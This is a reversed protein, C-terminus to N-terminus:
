IYTLLHSLIQTFSRTYIGKVFSGRTGEKFQRRRTKWEEFSMVAETDYTDYMTDDQNYQLSQYELYLAAEDDLVSVEATRNNRNIESQQLNLSNNHHITTTTHYNDREGTSALSNIPNEVIADSSSNSSSKIREDVEEDENNSTGYIGDMSITASGRLGKVLPNIQLAFSEDNGKIEKDYGGDETIWKAKIADERNLIVQIKILGFIYTHIRYAYDVNLELQEALIREKFLRGVCVFDFLGFLSLQYYYGDIFLLITKVMVLVIGHFQVYIFYNVLILPVDRNSSFLCAIILSGFMILMIPVIALRGLFLVTSQYKAYKRQFEVTETFPCTYLYKLLLGVSLASPTIIFLNIFTGLGRGDLMLHQLLMNTFQYLVFVVIDKSIYLIRTGHAGLKSGDM